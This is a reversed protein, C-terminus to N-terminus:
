CPWTHAPSTHAYITKINITRAFASCFSALFRVARILFSFPCVYFPTSPRWSSLAYHTRSRLSRCAMPVVARLILQLEHVLSTLVRVDSSTTHAKFSDIVAVDTQHPSIVLHLSPPRLLSRHHTSVERPSPDLPSQALRGASIGDM